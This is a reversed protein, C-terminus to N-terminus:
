ILGTRQLSPIIIIKGTEFTPTHWAMRNARLIDVGHDSNKYYKYSVSGPTDGAKCIHVAVVDTQRTTASDSVTLTDRNANQLKSPKNAFVTSTAARSAMAYKDKKDAFYVYAQIVAVAQQKTTLKEAPTMGLNDGVQNAIARTNKAFQSISNALAEPTNVVKNIIATAQKINNLQQTLGREADNLAKLPANALQELKGLTLNNASNSINKNSNNAKADKTADLCAQMTSQLAGTTSAKGADKDLNVAKDQVGGRSVWHFELTWGIDTHRDIPFKWSKLRGERLIKFDETTIASLPFGGPLQPGNSVSSQIVWTVALRAGGRAIDEITQMLVFPQIIDQLDGEPTLYRVPSKGMLTRKWMGTWSSPMEKPGLLQQTGEVGNGPYWTTTLNNEGSWEAGMHPLSPGVLWITRRQKGPPATKEQIIITSGTGLAQKSVESVTPM